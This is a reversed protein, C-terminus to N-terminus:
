IGTRDRLKVIQLIFTMILVEQPNNCLNFSIIHSYKSPAPM